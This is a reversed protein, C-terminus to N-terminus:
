WAVQIDYLAFNRDSTVVPVNMVQAQAIILRDFPDRHLLPLRSYAVLHPFELSVVNITREQVFKRHFDDFEMGLNLKGIQHKIAIEWLSGISFFIETEPDAICSDATPSLRQDDYIFWLFAHTDLLVQTM